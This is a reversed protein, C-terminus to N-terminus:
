KAKHYFIISNLCLLFIIASAFFDADLGAFDVAFFVVFVVSVFCVDEEDVEDFFVVLLLEPILVQPSLLILKQHMPAIAIKYKTADIRARQPTFKLTTETKFSQAVARAIQM